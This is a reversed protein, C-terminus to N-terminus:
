DDQEVLERLAERSVELKHELKSIEETLIAARSKDRNDMLTKKTEEIRAELSEIKQRLQNNLSSDNESRKSEVVKEMSAFIADSLNGSKDKSRIVESLPTIEKKANDALDDTNASLTTPPNEKTSILRQKLINVSMKLANITDSDEPATEDLKKQTNTLQNELVSISSDYAQREEQSMDARRKETDSTKEAVETQIETTKKDNTNFEETDSQSLNKQKDSVIEDSADNISLQSLKDLITKKKLEAEKIRARVGEAQAPDSKELETARSHLKKLREETSILNRNLRAEEDGPPRVIVTEKSTEAETETASSQEKQNKAEQEAKAKEKELKRQKAKEAAEERAKAREAKEIEIREKHFEFRQRARDSHQKEIAHKKIQGKAARYYQVLPIHSPCAYSCAGCEICDFLNHAQLKEEDEARAYWYLQQPLLSAPCAEACMGCRICAQAPSPPPSEELSPALLCNTTKVIPSESNLLTFGMMPGGMVLRSAKNEDYLHTDLIYSVPTGIRAIINRQTGYAEGTVTTIRSTLPEGYRVARYAALVTAINQCVAGIDAPLKGSPIEIGTLMQIVQKEGGSPYKVPLPVVDIRSNGVAKVAEQMAAIAKPKNDEIAILINKPEDLLYDLLLVGDLIEDSSIQMLMDDATIYPECETGNIVLTDIKLQTSLKISTPFGAGGMGVIGSEQIKELIETRDIKKYDSTPKLEIWKDDGDPEIVICLGNFGSAHPLPRDEIAKITGSTSAHVNASVFEKGEAVLQGRLVKEGVSVAPVAPAGLHQSVPLIIEPPLGLEFLPKALSQEKHEPPHVGGPTEWIKRM